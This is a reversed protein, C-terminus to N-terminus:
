INTHYQDHDKSLDQPQVAHDNRKQHCGLASISSSTLESVPFCIYESRVITAPLKLGSERNFLAPTKESRRPLVGLLFRNRNIDEVYQM